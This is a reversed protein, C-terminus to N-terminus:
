SAAYLVEPKQFYNRVIQPQRQTSRLYGRVNAILDDRNRARRRGVANSKVDQNLLEDPNLEPSYTPLLFMKICDTNQALWKQVTASKHVPHGDVILFVKRGIQRVLRHLFKMFVKTVFREVFVMFCLKGRNTVTSIMNCGFRKGTGPIVPTQGRRGYSRGASHDSRVGMEDGWHIEAKERQARRRIVPYEEELWRKVEVENQEFARRIPKQPTLGWRKLYRGVTWVSLEVGFKRRILGAVAQRTWLYFPLHLQDPCREEISRVVQAAQLAKLRRPGVPRGRRQAKLAWHGGEEYQNMWNHIAQRSVGFIRAAEAKSMGDRVARVAKIRMDEQAEAPLARADKNKM